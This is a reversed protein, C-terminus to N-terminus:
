LPGEWQPYEIWGSKIPFGIPFDACLNQESLLATWACILADFATLNQSLKKLDRDYIFIAQKEILQTLIEERSHVGEELDRYTSFIRQPIGLTNSVVALTLKPWVEILPIKQLHRKLFNMRATLPARNGGLTEDVELLRPLSLSPLVQNKIWLEVPRQTYPTFEKLPNLNQSTKQHFERMWKVSSVTCHSPLPCSKRTCTLCPPLELAVNVGMKVCGSSEEQIVELVAEDGTQCDHGVIKDFIDLLFIKKEKPYFELVALSTKQNKAGALELGLFRNTERAKSM